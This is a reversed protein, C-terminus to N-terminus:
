GSQSKSEPSEAYKRSIKAERTKLIDALNSPKRNVMDDIMWSVPRWDVIGKLVDQVAHTLKERDSYGLAAVELAVALYLSQCHKLTNTVENHKELAALTTDSIKAHQSAINIIFDWDVKLM